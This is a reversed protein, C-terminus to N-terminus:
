HNFIEEFNNEVNIAKSKLIMNKSTVYANNLLLELTPIPRIIFIMQYSFLSKSLKMLLQNINLLIIALRREGLALPFPAPIGIESLIDFGNNILIRKCSKYTFLRTHDIDLIGRRGYNFQGLLLMFRLPIFAINGTSIIIEPVDMCYRDRIRRLFMEPSRMHEIIDLLLITDVTPFQTFDITEIDGQVTTQSYKKADDGIHKDISITNVSKKSLEKAMYGPGCGVDLVHAGPKIRDIVFQHTSQYGKKLEYYVDQHAYDFKPHYFIGIKMLRSNITSSLIMFGYKLVSVRSIEEGYFTPIPIEKIRNGTDVLQILIDTDFDFYNSNYEFPISKLASVRYSKYGTHFESLRAGLIKNQLFTLAINGLWKYIPMKGMLASKKDIMRSGLVVDCEDNLIPLIMQELLEPPYQGDGHLLVVINFGKNIAYQYGIKQNGGYGLNKPNYLVTVNDLSNRESYKRAVYFTNDMSQDDIILIEVEFQDNRWVNEQIRSLVSDIFKEHNYCVIFILVKSKPMYEERMNPNVIHVCM